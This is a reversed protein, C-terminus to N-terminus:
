AAGINSIGILKFLSGFCCEVCPSSINNRIVNSAQPAQESFFSVESSVAVSSGSYNSHGRPV